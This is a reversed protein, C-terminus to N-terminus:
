YFEKFKEALYIVEKIQLLHKINEPLMEIFIEINALEIINNFKNM